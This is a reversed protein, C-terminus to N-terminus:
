EDCDWVLEEALLNLAEEGINRLVAAIDGNEVFDLLAYIDM